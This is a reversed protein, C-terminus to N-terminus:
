KNKFKTLMDAILEYLKESTCNLNAFLKMIIVFSTNVTGKEIKYLLTYSIDTKYALKEISIKNEIRLTRLYNGLEISCSKKEM